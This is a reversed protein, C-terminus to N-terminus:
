GSKTIVAAIREGIVVAPINTNARPVQPMLSCDAITIQPLGWLCGGEDCVASEDTAAGLKCTGVPHYYHMVNSRIDQDSRIRVTPDGLMTRFSPQSALDYAIEIAERMVAIDHGDPDELYNHEISPPTNPDASRLRLEGRARPYVPSVPIACCADLLNVQTSAGVPLVHIDYPGDCSSSAFKGLTQEDPM